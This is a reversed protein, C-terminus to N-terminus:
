QKWISGKNVTGTQDDVGFEARTSYRDEAEKQFIEFGECAAENDRFEWAIVNDDIIGKGGIKGLDANELEVSFARSSINSFVYHNIKKEPFGRLEIEQSCFIIGNLMESVKWRTYYELIEASFSIEISGQGLWIGPHFLFSHLQM